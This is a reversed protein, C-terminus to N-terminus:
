TLYAQFLPLALLVGSHGPPFKISVVQFSPALTSQRGNLIPLYKAPVVVPPLPRALLPPVSNSGCVMPVQRSGSGDTVMYRENTRTGIGQTPKNSLSALGIVQTRSLPLILRVIGTIDWLDTVGGGPAALRHLLM